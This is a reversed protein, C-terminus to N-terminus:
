QQEEDEEEGSLVLASETARLCPILSLSSFDHQLRKCYRNCYRLSIYVIKISDTLGPYGAAPCYCLGVGGELGSRAELIALSQV